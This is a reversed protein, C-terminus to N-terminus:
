PKQRLAKVPFFDLLIIVQFHFSSRDIVLNWIEREEGGGKEREKTKLKM